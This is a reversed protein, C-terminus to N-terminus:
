VDIRRPSSFETPYSSWHILGFYGQQAVPYLQWLGSFSNRSAQVDCRLGRVILSSAVGLDAEDLLATSMFVNNEITYERYVSM